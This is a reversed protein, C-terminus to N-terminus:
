SAGPGLHAPAVAAGEVLLLAFLLAALSLLTPEMAWGLAPVIVWGAIALLTLRTALGLAWVLLFRRTGVSRVLWWGLPGQVVVAAALAGRVAAREAGRLVFSLALTGGAVLVLGMAYRGSLSV